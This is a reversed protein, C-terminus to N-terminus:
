VMTKNFFICTNSLKVNNCDTQQVLSLPRLVLRHRDHLFLDLVRSFLRQVKQFVPLVKPFLHSHSFVLLLLFFSLPAGPFLSDSGQLACPEVILESTLIYTVTCLNYSYLTCNCQGTYVKSVNYLTCYMSLTCRGKLVYLDVLIRCTKKFNFKFEIRGKLLSM